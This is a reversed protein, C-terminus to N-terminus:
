AGGDPPNPNFMHRFVNCAEKRCRSSSGSTRSLCGLRGTSLLWERTRWPSTPLLFRTQKWKRKWSTFNWETRDTIYAILCFTKTLVVQFKQQLLGSCVPVCLFFNWTRGGVLAAAILSFLAALEIQLCQLDAPLLLPLPDPPNPNVSSM